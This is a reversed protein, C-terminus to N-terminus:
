FDRDTPGARGHFGDWVGLACAWLKAMKRDEFLVIAILIEGMASLQYLLWHPFLRGYSGITRVANRFMYYKRLPEHHMPSIASISTAGVVKMGAHHLIEARCSVLIRYGAKRARLCYEFDVLDIFYDDRFPGIKRFVSVNTLTGSTIVLTVGNPGIELCKVREFFPIGKKPRLWRHQRDDSRAEKRMSGILAIDSYGSYQQATTTLASICDNNVASDQDLTLVWDYGEGALLEMGQNLATAIGLNATNRLLTVDQHQSYQDIYGFTDDNSGNDVIVLRRVQQLLKDIRPPLGDDPYYTVILAAASLQSSEKRSSHATM